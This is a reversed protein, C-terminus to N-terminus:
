KQGGIVDIETRERYGKFYINVEVIHEIPGEKNLSRDVNRVNMPRELKKLKFGQKRTFKSSMVLGTAGSDLLAEVMIREQMDIRELGIKVMVKRLTRGEVKKIRIETRESKM